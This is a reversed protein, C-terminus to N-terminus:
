LTFFKNARAVTRLPVSLEGMQEHTLTLVIDDDGATVAKLTATITRQGQIEEKLVLTVIGGVEQEFHDRRKLPRSLGPSSVELVYSGKVRDLVDLLASMERSVLECDKLQVGQPSGIYLKLVRQGKGGGTLEIDVLTYGLEAIPDGLLGWLEREMPGLGALAHREDPLPM